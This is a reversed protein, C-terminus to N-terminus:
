RLHSESLAKIEEYCECTRDLLGERDLVTISGRTYDILGDRKLGGAIESVGPRRVGLMLSLYEQTLPFHDARVRDHTTLLWRCVREGVTHLSNCASGMAVAGMFADSYRLLLTYLAGGPSRVHRRFDEARMRHARGPIQAVVTTNSVENGLVLSLGVFGEAGMMGVEITTGEATDMITSTVANDLFWVSEIPEGRRLLVQRNELIVPELYAAIRQREAEPLRAIIQNERTPEEM